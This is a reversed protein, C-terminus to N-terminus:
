DCLWAAGRVGSSDGFRPPLLRTEVNDSFIYQSWRRPVNRYLRAVKSLGGGLVIAGPDLVNIVSALARALREEYDQMAQECQADGQRAQEDIDAASLRRGSAEFFHKELAPGSLWTEICGTRGCYCAHGPLETAQPWPLSNHGWEGGIENRGRLVQGNVVIGGGVGTGLIVGFVVAEGAAAGDRAESLAFCNADNEIRLERGLMGQLDAVLDHGNLCTSNANKILGTSHSAAGPTAIGVHGAQALAAEADRVLGAIADLTARYGDRPTPIRRRYVESGDQALALIEIKTGGLDIGFRLMTLYDSQDHCAPQRVRMM